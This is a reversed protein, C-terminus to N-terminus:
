CEYDRGAILDFKIARDQICADVSSLIVEAFIRSAEPGVCIGNTEDHNMRQMLRDFESGFSQCQKTAKSHASGKIAWGVSHTYISSFCKSIDLLMTLPTEPWPRSTQRPPMPGRCCIM